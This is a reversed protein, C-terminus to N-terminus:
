QVSAKLVHSSNGSEAAQLWVSILPANAPVNVSVQANGNADALTSGAQIPSGIAMLVGLDDVRTPGTNGTRSYFFYVSTMPTAGGVYLGASTGRILPDAEIVMPKKVAAQANVIGYGYKNDRGLSGRDIATEALRRRVDDNIKGDENEDIVGSAFALAAVGAAHPSAMSTGSFEIYGGGRKCSPVDVGPAALEMQPGTDVFLPVGNNKNIAGVAIVSEYRAPWSVGFLGYFNGSAAVHLIGADYAADYANQVASGPNTFSGLSQNTVNMGNDISWQLAAIVTSFNGSGNQNLVKLAYLEADPAVGVVGVSDWAAAITGSVHTGHDHDDMPDPDNNQFDWGGMVKGALEPHNYDIGTDLVAVKVGSGTYGFDHAYGGGIHKVGWTNDLEQDYAQFEGDWEILEVGPLLTVANLAAPDIEAAIVPVITFVHSVTAGIALVRDRDIADPQRDYSILVKVADGQAAAYAATNALQPQIVDQRGTSAFTTNLGACTLAACAAVTALSKKVPHTNM